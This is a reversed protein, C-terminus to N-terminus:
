LCFKAKEGRNSELSKFGGLPLRSTGTCFQLIRSLEIQSYTEMAKWFRSITMSWKGYGKLETNKKWDELDIHPNGCIAAELEEPTFIQIWNQPIVKHFGDTLDKLQASVCKYGM